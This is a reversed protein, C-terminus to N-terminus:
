LIYIKHNKKLIKDYQWSLPLVSIETKYYSEYLKKNILDSTIMEVGFYDINFKESLEEWLECCFLVKSENNYFRFIPRGNATYINVINNEGTIKNLKKIRSLNEDYIYLNYFYGKDDPISIYYCSDLIKKFHKIAEVNFM